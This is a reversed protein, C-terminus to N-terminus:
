YEFFSNPPYGMASLKKNLMNNMPPPGCYIILVSGDPNPSPMTNSIMNEDVFGVFGKWNDTTKFM